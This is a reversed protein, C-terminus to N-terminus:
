HILDACRLPSAPIPRRRRHVRPLVRQFLTVPSSLPLQLQLPKMWGSCRCSIVDVGFSLRKLFIISKFDTCCWVSSNLNNNHNFTVSFVKIINCLIEIEVATRKFKRNMLFIRFFTNHNGCLYSAVCCLYYHSIHRSCCILIIESPDHSVSSQLSYHHQFNLKADCSYIVNEFINM